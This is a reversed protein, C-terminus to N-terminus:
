RGKVGWVSHCKDFFSFDIQNYLRIMDARFGTQDNVFKEKQQQYTGDLWSQISFESDCAAKFGGKLKGSEIFQLKHEAMPLILIIFIFSLLWEKIKYKM